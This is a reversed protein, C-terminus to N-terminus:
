RDSGRTPHWAHGFLLELTVPIQGERTGFHHLYVSALQRPYGKGMLGQPRQRHPNVAGMDRLATLLAAPDPWTLTFRDRDTVPQAFGAKALMEGLHHPSPFEPVRLWTRGHRAHDTEELATKLERLTGEGACCLFMAGGPALVRRMERLALLPDACWHLTMNAVVLDFRREAFPLRSPDVTVRAPRRRWPLRWRGGTTEDPLTLRATVVRADPYREQVQASFPGPRRTLELIERPNMRTEELREALLGGITAHPDERTAPVAHRLSRRVRRPDIRGYPLAELPITDNM